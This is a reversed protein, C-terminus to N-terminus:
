PTAASVRAAAAAACRSRRQAVAVKEQLAVLVAPPATEPILLGGGFSAAADFREAVYADLAAQKAAALHSPKTYRRSLDTHGFYWINEALRQVVTGVAFSANSLYVRILGEPDCCEAQAMEIRYPEAALAAELKALRQEPPEGPPSSAAYQPSQSAGSMKQRKHAAAAEAAAASSLGSGSGGSGGGAMPTTRAAGQQVAAAARPPYVANFLGAMWRQRRRGLAMVEWERYMKM